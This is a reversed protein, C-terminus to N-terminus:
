HLTKTKSSLSRSLRKEFAELELADQEFGNQELFTRLDKLLPEIWEVSKQKTNAM